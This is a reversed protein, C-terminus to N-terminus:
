DHCSHLLLRRGAGFHRWWTSAWTHTLFVNRSAEALRAWEERLEDFGSCPEAVLRQKGTRPEPSVEITSPARSRLVPRLTPPTAPRPAPRQGLGVGGIRGRARTRRPGLMLELRGRHRLARSELVNSCRDGASAPQRRNGPARVRAPLRGH